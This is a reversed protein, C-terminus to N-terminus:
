SGTSAGDQTLLDALRRLSEVNRAHILPRVLPTLVWASGAPRERFRIESGTPAPLVHLEVDAQLPGVRVRLDLRTPREARTATSSDDVTLAKGPGVSHHLESGPKPFDSDVARMQQAGVLWDPYTEPNSIVSWVAEAGVPVERRAEVHSFPGVM